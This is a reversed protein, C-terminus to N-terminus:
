LKQQLYIETFHTITDWSIGIGVDAKRRMLKIIEKADEKTIINGDNDAMELVDDVNFGFATEGDAEDLMDVIPQIDLETLDMPLKCDIALQVLHEKIKQATQYSNM